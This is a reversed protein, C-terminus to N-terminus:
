PATARLWIQTWFLGLARYVFPEALHSAIERPSNTYLRKRTNHFRTIETFGAEKLLRKFRRPTYGM